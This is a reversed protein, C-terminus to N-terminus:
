YSIVIQNQECGARSTRRFDDVHQTAEAFTVNPGKTVDGFVQSRVVHCRTVESM